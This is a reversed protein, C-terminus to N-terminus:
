AHELINLVTGDPDRIFFRRVGWSEVTLPHVIELGTEVAAAYVEDLNDVQISVSPVVPATQDRTMVSLELDAARKAAVGPTPTLTAIWGHDMVTALGLLDGYFSQAAAVSSVRINPVIRVVSV